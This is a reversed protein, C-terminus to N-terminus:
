QIKEIVKMITDHTMTSCRFQILHLEEITPLGKFEGDQELCSIANLRMNKIIKNCEENRHIWEDSFKDFFGIIQFSKFGRKYAYKEFKKSIEYNIYPAEKNYYKKYAVAKQEPSLKCHAIFSEYRKCFDEYTIDYNIGLMTSVSKHFKFWWYTLSSRNELDKEKLMTEPNEYFNKKYHKRCNPCPLVDCLSEFYKKYNQKDEISPEHPYNFTICHSGEWIHPGFISTLIGESERNDSM